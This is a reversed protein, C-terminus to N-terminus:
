VGGVRAFDYTDRERRWVHRLYSGFERAIRYPLKDWDRFRCYFLLAALFEGGLERVQRCAGCKDFFQAIRNALGGWSLAFILENSSRLRDYALLDSAFQAALV